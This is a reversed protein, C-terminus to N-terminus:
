RRLEEMQKHYSYLFGLSQAIDTFDGRLMDSPTKEMTDILEDTYSEAGVSILYRAIGLFTQYVQDRTLDSKSVDTAVKLMSMTGIYFASKESDNLLKLLEMTEEQALAVHALFFIIGLVVLRKM